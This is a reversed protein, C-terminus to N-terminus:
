LDQERMVEQIVPRGLKNNSLSLEKLRNENIKKNAPQPFPDGVKYKKNKDQGDTFNYIVEYKM